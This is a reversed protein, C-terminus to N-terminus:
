PHSLVVRLSVHRDKPSGLIIVDRDELPRVTNPPIPSIRDSGSHRVWTTNQYDVLAKIAPREADLQLAAHLRSIVPRVGPQMVNLLGDLALEPSIPPNKTLDRRGIRVPLELRAIPIQAVFTGEPLQTDDIEIVHLTITPQVNFLGVDVGVVSLYQAQPAKQPMAHADLDTGCHPCIIEGNIYTEHCDHCNPM